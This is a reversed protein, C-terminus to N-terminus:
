SQSRRMILIRTEGWSRDRLIEWSRRAEWEGGAAMEYIFLGSESLIASKEMAVLIKELPSGAGTKDYPPDAFVIDYPPMKQRGLFALADACVARHTAKWDPVAIREINGVLHNYVERNSEVWCISKAGRSLAELGIAGSGAYLDLVRTDAVTDALMAFLSERVRDSTPRVTEPPTALRRGKFKGAIIRM